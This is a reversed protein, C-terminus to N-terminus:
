MSAAAKQQDMGEQWKGPQNFPQLILESLNREIRGFPETLPKGAKHLFGFDFDALEKYDTLKGFNLQCMELNTLTIYDPKFAHNLPLMSIIETPNHLSHSIFHHKVSHYEGLVRNIHSWRSEVKSFDFPLPLTVLFHFTEEDTQNLINQWDRHTVIDFCSTNLVKFSDMLQFSQDDSEFSDSFIIGIDFKYGRMRCHDAIASVTKSINVGPFSTFLHRNSESLPNNSDFYDEIRAIVSQELSTNGSSDMGKLHVSKDFWDLLIEPKFHQKRLYRYLPIGSYESQDDAFKRVMNELFELRRNLKIMQTDQEQDRNRDPKKRFHERFGLSDSDPKPEPSSTEKHLTQLQIKESNSNKRTQNSAAKIYSVGPTSKNRKKQDKQDQTSKEKGSSSHLYSPLSINKLSTFTESGSELLQEVQHLLPQIISSSPNPKKGKRDNQSSESKPEIAITIFASGAHTSDITEVIVFQNGYQDIARNRAEELTKGSIKRLIM